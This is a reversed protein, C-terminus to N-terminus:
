YKAESHVDEKRPAFTLFLFLFVLGHTLLVTTFDNSRTINMVSLLALASVLAHGIRKGYANLFALLLGFLISYIIVGLYGAHSFGSGILGTNAAWTTSGFYEEGIIFPSALDYPSEVLGLSIRSTSWYYLPNDSFFIVHREDLMPPTFLMRRIFNNVFFLFQDTQLIFRALVVNLMAFLPLIFFYLSLYGARSPSRLFAYFSIFLIPAFLINKFNTLGFFVLQVSLALALIGFRRLEISYLIALPLLIASLLSVFYGLFGPVSDLNDARVQYVNSLNFNLRYVGGLVMYLILFVLSLGLAFNLFQKIKIPRMLIPRFNLASIQVSFIIVFALTVVYRLDAGALFSFVISPIFFLFNTCILLYTRTDRKNPLMLATLITAVSIKTLALPTEAVRFGQYDWFAAVENKYLWALLLAYVLSTAVKLAAPYDFKLSATTV